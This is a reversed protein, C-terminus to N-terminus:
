VQIRGNPLPPAPTRVLRLHHIGRWTAAVWAATIAAGAIYPHGTILAGAATGSLLTAALGLTLTLHCPCIVFAGIVWALGRREAHTSSTPVPCVPGSTIM